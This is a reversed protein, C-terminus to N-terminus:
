FPCKDEDLPLPFWNYLYARLTMNRVAETFERELRHRPEPNGDQASMTDFSPINSPSPPYAPLPNGESTARERAEKILLIAEEEERTRVWSLPADHYRLQQEMLDTAKLRM